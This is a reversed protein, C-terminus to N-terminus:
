QRTISQAVPYGGMTGIGAYGTMCTDGMMGGSACDGYALKNIQVSTLAATPNVPNVVITAFSNGAGGAAPSAAKPYGYYLGESSAAFGGESFVDTTNLAFSTVLLAGAGDSVTSLQFSLPVSVMPPGTMSETLQGALGTVAQTTSNLTFTGTFISDNPQTDPEFWRATVRYNTLVPAAASFVGSGVRNSAQVAFAYGSCSPACSVTLPSAAGSVTLGAPVSAVTYGMVPSGGSSAPGAFSVVVTNAVTGLSASVATPAGPETVPVASAAVTITQTIQPAAIYNADGAQNAAITCDGAATNTVIGVSANVTCVAPTTSSYSVALGSTVTASVIATGYLTLAPATGFSLTQAPNFLVSLNQTVTAAPAFTDSGAQDAAIVCTGVALDTVLGSSANVSCIAPTATSYSVALASSATATVTATAGLALTPATGFRINQPFAQIAPGSGGGGCATLLSATLASAAFLGLAASTKKLNFHM